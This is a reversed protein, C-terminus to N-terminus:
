WIYTHQSLVNFIMEGLSINFNMGLMIIDTVFIYLNQLYLIYQVRLISHM